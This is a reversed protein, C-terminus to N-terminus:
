LEDRQRYKFLYWSEPDIPLALTIHPWEFEPKKFHLSKFADPKITQCNLAEDATVGVLAMMQLFLIHRARLQPPTEECRTAFQMLIELQEDPRLQDFIEKWKVTDM